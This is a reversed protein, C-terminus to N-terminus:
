SPDANFGGVNGRFVTIKWCCPWPGFCNWYTPAVCSKGRWQKAFPHSLPLHVAFFIFANLGHANHTPTAPATLPLPRPVWNAATLFKFASIPMKVVSANVIHLKCCSPFVLTLSFPFWCLFTKVVSGFSCIGETSVIILHDLFNSTRMIFKKYIYFNRFVAFMKLCKCLKRISIHM